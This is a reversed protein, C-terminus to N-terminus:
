KFINRGITQLIQRLDSDLGGWILNYQECQFKKTKKKGTDPLKQNLM